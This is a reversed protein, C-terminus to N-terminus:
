RPRGGRAKGSRIMIEVRAEARAARDAEFVEAESPHPRSSAKQLSKEIVAAIGTFPLEGGLFAGVAIENAASLAAPATGGRGAAEYALRLCPFRVLDAEEFTLPPLRTLDFDDRAPLREPYGLAYRIPHRMDTEGLQAVYSGDEFEVLSHVVSQPHVVVHIREPPVGFLHMAEIVELGKNMLTASDVTIKRGMVWTPHALAEDVTVRELEETSLRRFPGGSATLVLRRVGGPDRGALCQHLAVHESDIPLIETGTRRADAMVLEGGAVISEKNALCIRAFRGMGELTPRLGAAGVIANVLIEGRARRVLELIGEEGGLVEVGTRRGARRAGEEDAVAALAPAYRGLIEEFGEGGRGAGMGVVAFRDAHEEVVRLVSRGISGTAGLLVIRARAM